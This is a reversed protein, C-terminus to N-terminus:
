RYGPGPGRGKGYVFVICRSPYKAEKSIPM